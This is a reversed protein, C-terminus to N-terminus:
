EGVFRLHKIGCIYNLNEAVMRLFAPESFHDLSLLSDHSLVDMVFLSLYQNLNRRYYITESNYKM